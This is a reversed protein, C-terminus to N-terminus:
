RFTHPPSLTLPLPPISSRNSCESTKRGGAREQEPQGQGLVGQVLQKEELPVQLAGELTDELIPAIQGRDPEQRVNLHYVPQRRM